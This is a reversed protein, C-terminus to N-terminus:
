NLFYYEAKPERLIYTHNGDCNYCDFSDSKMIKTKGNSFIQISTKHPYGNEPVDINGELTQLSDNSSSKIMTKVNGVRMELSDVDIGLKNEFCFHHGWKM